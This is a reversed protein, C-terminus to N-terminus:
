EEGRSTREVQQNYLDLIVQESPAVGADRLAALIEDREAAPVDRPSYALRDAGPQEFAFREGVDDFEDDVLRAPSWAGRKERVVQKVLLAEAERRLDEPALEKGMEQLARVRRDLQRRFTISRMADPNTISVEPNIGAGVLADRVADNMGTIQALRKQTAESQLGSRLNAQLDVLEKFRADDLKNRYELLNAQLFAPRQEDSAAALRLGYYASWDTPTSEGRDRRAAYARLTEQHEPTMSAMLSAPIADLGRGNDPATFLGYAQRFNGDERERVARERLGHMTVLRQEAEARLEPRDGTKTRVQELAVDLAVLGGDAGPKALLDDVLRQSEQRVDGVRMAKELRDADEPLIHQKTRDFERRAGAVDGGDLLRAVVGGYTASFTEHLARTLVEPPQGRLSEELAMGQRQIELDVRTPDGAAALAASRSTELYAQAQTREYVQREGAVHRQLSRDVDVRRSGAVRRFAQRVHDGVLGKEIGAATDDFSGLTSEPLNFAETGRKTLAGTQADHLSRNEWEALQRDAEMLAVQEAKKREETAVQLRQEAIRDSAEGVDQLGAGVPGGLSTVTPAATLRVGPIPATEVQRNGYSPVKPM